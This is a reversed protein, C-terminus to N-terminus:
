VDKNLLETKKKVFEEKTIAGQKYLEMYKMIEEADSGAKSNQKEPPTAWMLIVIGIILLLGFWKCSKPFGKREALQGCYLVSYQFIEVIFAICFILTIWVLIIGFLTAIMEDGQSLGRSYYGWFVTVCLLLVVILGHQKLAGKKM